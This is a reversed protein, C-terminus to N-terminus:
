WSLMLSVNTRATKWFVNQLLRTIHKWSHQHEFHSTQLRLISPWWILTSPTSFSRYCFVPGQLIPPTVMTRPQPPWLDLKKLFAWDFPWWIEDSYSKEALSVDFSAEAAFARSAWYLMLLEQMTLTIRGACLALPFMQVDKFSASSVLIHDFSFDLCCKKQATQRLKLIEPHM